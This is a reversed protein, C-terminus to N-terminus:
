SLWHSLNRGILGQLKVIDEKFFDQLERRTKPSLEPKVLNKNRLRIIIHKLRKPIFRGAHAAVRSAGGGLLKHLTRSRPRGTANRQGPMTPEFSSDVGLFSFIDQATRVPKEILDEFLYVKIQDNGFQDCYRQLQQAYLGTHKYCWYMGWKREIRSAEAKLAEEFTPLPESGDLVHHMYQSYARDAPNRLIAILKVNPILQAIRSPAEESPLYSTSAEGVAREGDVGSFLSRYSDRNAESMRRASFYRPEKVPSMYVQPHRKLLRHLTSTGSKAAGIIMFNPWQMARNEQRQDMDGNYM